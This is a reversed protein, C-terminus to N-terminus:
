GGTKAPPDPLGQSEARPNATTGTMSADKAVLLGIVPGLAIMVNAAQDIISEKGPYLIKLLLGLATILGAVTTKWNALINGM